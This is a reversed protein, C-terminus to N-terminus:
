QRRKNFRLLGFLGIGLLALIGPEPAPNHPTDIM